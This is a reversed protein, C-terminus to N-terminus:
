FWADRVRMTSSRRRFGLGRCLCLLFPGGSEQGLTAARKCRLNFYRFPGLIGCPAQAIIICEVCLTWKEPCQLCRSLAAFSLRRGRSSLRPPQHGARSGNSVSQACALCPRVLFARPHDASDTSNQECCDLLESTREYGSDRPAADESEIRKYATRPYGFRRRRLHFGLPTPLSGSQCTCRSLNQCFDARTLTYLRGWQATSQSATTFQWITVFVTFTHEEHM